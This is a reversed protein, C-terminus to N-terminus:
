CSCNFFAHFFPQKEGRATPFHKEKNLFPFCKGKAVNIWKGNVSNMKRQSKEQQKGFMPFAPFHIGPIWKRVIM